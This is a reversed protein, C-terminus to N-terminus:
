HFVKLLLVLLITMMSIMLTFTNQRKKKHKSRSDSTFQIDIGPFYVLCMLHDMDTREKTFWIVKVVSMSVISVFLIYIVIDVVSTYMCLIKSQVLYTFTHAKQNIIYM